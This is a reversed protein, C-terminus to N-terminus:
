FGLQSKALDYLSVGSDTLKNLQGIRRSIEKTRFPAPEDVIGTAAVIEVMNETAIYLYWIKCEFESNVFQYQFSRLYQIGLAELGVQPNESVLLAINRLETDNSFESAYILFTETMHVFVQNTRKM